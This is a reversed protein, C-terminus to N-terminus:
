QIILFFFFDDNLKGKNPGYTICIDFLLVARYLFDIYKKKIRTLSWTKVLNYIFHYKQKTKTM